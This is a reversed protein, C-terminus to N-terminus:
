LRVEHSLHKEGAWELIRTWIEASDDPREMAREFYALATQDDPDIGFWRTADRIRLKACQADKEPHGQFTLIANNHSLFCQNGGLLEYFGRPPSAVARRHHQQLLLVGDGSQRSFFRRGAPTLKAETVGLEPTEMDVIEAGFLLSITQHGWCIGCIKKRPYNAVVDLIFQHVRLIWPHKKRPDANSGGVVILDFAAPDPFDDAQEAPYFFSLVAAGRSVAGICRIYSDRIQTIFPSRYSNLLIAIRLPSTSPPHPTPNM